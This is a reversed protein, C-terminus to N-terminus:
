ERRDTPGNLRDLSRQRLYERGSAIQMRLNALASVQRPQSRERSPTDVPRVPRDQVNDTVGAVTALEHGASSRSRYEDGQLSPRPEGRKQIGGLFVSSYVRAIEFASKTGSESYWTVTDSLAGRIMYYSVKPDIDSRFEGDKVGQEIVALWIRDVMDVSAAVDPFTSEIVSWERAAVRAELMGDCITAITVEILGVVAESALRGEQAVVDMCGTLLSNFYPAVLEELMSEKSKFHYFLSGSVIQARDAIDRVSTAHYGETAFLELVIRLLEERRPSNKNARARRV